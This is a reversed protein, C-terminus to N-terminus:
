LVLVVYAKWESGKFEEKHGKGNQSCRGEGGGLDRKEKAEGPQFFSLITVGRRKPDLYIM